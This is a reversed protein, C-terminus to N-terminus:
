NVLVGLAVRHRLTFVTLFLCFILRVLASSTLSVIFHFQFWCCCCCCCYAGASLLCICVLFDTILFQSRGLGLPTVASCKPMDSRFLRDALVASLQYLYSHKTGCLSLSFQEHMQTTRSPKRHSVCKRM